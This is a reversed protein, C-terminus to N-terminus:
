FFQENTYRFGQFGKYPIKMPAKIVPATLVMRNWTVTAPLGNVRIIEKPTNEMEYHSINCRYLIRGGVIIYCCLVEHKPKSRIKQYWAGGDHDNMAEFAKMFMRLTNGGETLLAMSWTIIIGIPKDLM